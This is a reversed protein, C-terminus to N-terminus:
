YVLELGLLLSHTRAGGRFEDSSAGKSELTLEQIRWAYGYVLALPLDSLRQSLSASLTLLRAREVTGAPSSLGVVYDANGRLLWNASLALGSEAGVAPGHVLAHSVSLTGGDLRNFRVVNDLGYGLRADLYLALDGLMRYRGAMAASFPQVVLPKQGPPDGAKPERFLITATRVVSADLALARTLWLNAGAAVSNFLVADLNTEDGERNTSYYLISPAYAVRLSSTPAPPPAPGEPKTVPAPQAVEDKPLRAVRVLTTASYPGRRGREDEAAVRLYYHGTEMRPFVFLPESLRRAVIPAIFDPDSALEVYYNAAGPIPRWTVQPKEDSAAQAYATDEIISKLWDLPSQQLRTNLPLLIDIVPPLVPAELPPPVATPAKPVTPRAPSSTPSPTKADAKTTTPPVAGGFSPSSSSPSPTSTQIQTAMQPPRNNLLSQGTLPSTTGADGAPVAEGGPTSGGANATGDTLGLGDLVAPPPASSSPAAAKPGVMAPHPAAVPMVAALKAKAKVEFRGVSSWEADDEAIRVRWSYSGAALPPTGYGNGRAQGKAVVKKDRAVEVQYGTAGTIGEWLLQVSDGEAELAEGRAPRYLSPGGVASVDFRREESTTAGARVRWWYTGAELAQTVAGEVSVTRTAVIKRFGQDRALEVVYPPKGRVAQWALKVGEGAKLRLATKHAPATLRVAIQEPKVEDKSSSFSATQDASIEVEREGVTAKGKVVEVRAKGDRAVEIRLDAAKSPTLLTGQRDVKILVAESAEGLAARLSGRMVNLVTKAEAKEIAVLTSEGLEIRTGDDFTLTAASGEDTFVADKPFLPQSADAADWLPLEAPRRRVVNEAMSLTAMPTTQPLAPPDLAFLHVDAALLVFVTAAVLTLAAALVRDLRSKRWEEM